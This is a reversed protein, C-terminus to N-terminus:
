DDQLGKQRGCVSMSLCVSLGVSERERDRERFHSGKVRDYKGDIRVVSEVNGGYCLLSQMLPVYPGFIRQPQLHRERELKEGM